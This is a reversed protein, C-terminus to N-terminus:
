VRERCSARGIKITLGEVCEGTKFGFAQDRYMADIEAATARVDGSGSRIFTNSQTNYYIPKQKSPHIYFALVHKGDITYHHAEPRIKVNFKQGNLTNIFEQEIKEPNSVGIISFTKDKKEVGLILWGGVTNSFASVTEWCSKPLEHATKVEFDEWEIDALRQLLEDKNM